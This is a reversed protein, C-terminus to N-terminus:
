RYSKPSQGIIKKFLRSFYYPDGFGLKEAIECVRMDTLKLLQCARQIKLRNFYEKPSYQHQRKFLVGYHNTSMGALRALKRLSITKNLNNHMFHITNDCQEEATRSRHEKTGQWLQMVSLLSSLGGSAAILNPITHVESLFSYIQEFAITTEEPQNMYLLPSAPSISLLKLYDPAQQGKFHIWYNAWPNEPMAGYAHPVGAPVLFGMNKEIVWQSEGIELWGTGETCYIMIHESSGRPRPIYHAAAPGQYGIRTCLLDRTIPQQLSQDVLQEPMFVLRMDPFAGRQVHRIVEPSITSFDRCDVGAHNLLEKLAHMSKPKM